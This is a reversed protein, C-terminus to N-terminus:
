SPNGTQKPRSLQFHSVIKYVWSAKGLETEVFNVKNGVFKLLEAVSPNQEAFPVANLVYQNGDVESKRIDIKVAWGDIYEAYAGVPIREDPVGILRQLFNRPDPTDYQLSELAEGVPLTARNKSNLVALGGQGAKKYYRALEYGMMVIATLTTRVEKPQLTLGVRLPTGEPIGATNGATYAELVSYQINM